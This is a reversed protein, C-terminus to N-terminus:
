VHNQLSLFLLIDAPFQLDDPFKLIIGNAVDFLNWAINHNIM